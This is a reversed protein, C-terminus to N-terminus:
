SGNLEALGQEAKEIATQVEQAQQVLEAYRQVSVTEQADILPRIRDAIARATEIALRYQEEARSPLRLQAYLEGLAIRARVYEPDVELVQQLRAEAEAVDGQQGVLIASLYLAQVYTDTFSPLMLPIELGDAVLQRDGLVFGLNAQALYVETRRFAVECRELAERAREYLSSAEYTRGDSARQGALQIMAMAHHFYAERPMPGVRTSRSLLEDAQETRGLQLQILGRNLLVDGRFGAWAYLVVFVCVAAALGFGVGSRINWRRPLRGAVVVGSNGYVPSGSIGLLLLLAWSSPVLHAPFSVSSLVAFSVAGALLLILEVRKEDDDCVSRIRQIAYIVLLVIVAAVAAIGAAGMEAVAQVYESHAKDMAVGPVPTEPHDEVLKALEPIYEVAFDGLGTGFVPSAALMRGGVKWITARAQGSNAEWAAVAPTGERDASFLVRGPGLVVSCVLGGAVVIVTALSWIKRRLLARWAGSALLLIVTVLLSVVIAALGGAHNLLPFAAWSVAVLALAVARQWARESFAVLLCAPPLVVVLFAGLYNPNGMFSVMWVTGSGAVLGGAQLLGYVSAAGAAAALAWVVGHVRKRDRALSAVVPILSAFAVLPLFSEFWSGFSSAHIGSLGAAFILAGGAFAVTPIRLEREIDSRRPWLLAIWLMPIVTLAFALKAQAYDTSAPWLVLPVVFAFLGLLGAIFRDSGLGSGLQRPIVRLRNQGGRDDSASVADSAGKSGPKVKSSSKQKAPKM